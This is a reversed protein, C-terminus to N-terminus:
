WHAMSGDEHRLLPVDQAVGPHAQVTEWNVEIGLGPGKPLAFYGERVAIPETLLEDRWPVDGQAVEQIAFNPICAALHLCVATAVPSYPNHPAVNVWYAEAM